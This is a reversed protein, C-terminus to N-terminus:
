KNMLSTKYHLFSLYVVILNLIHSFLYNSIVYFSSTIVKLNTDEKTLNFHNLNPDPDGDDYTYPSTSYDTGGIPVRGINYEIGDKSFYSRSFIMFIFYVYGLRFTILYKCYAMLIKIGGVM